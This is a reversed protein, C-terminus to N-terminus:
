LCSQTIIEERFGEPVNVCSINEHGINFTRSAVGIITV